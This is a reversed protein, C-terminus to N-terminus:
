ILDRNGFLFPCTPPLHDTTGWSISGEPRMPAAAPVKGRLVKKGAVDQVGLLGELDGQRVKATIAKRRANREPTIELHADGTKSTKWITNPRKLRKGDVAEAEMGEKKNRNMKSSGLGHSRYIEWDLNGQCLPAAKEVSQMEPLGTAPAMLNRNSRM